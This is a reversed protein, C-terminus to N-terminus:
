TPKACGGGRRKWTNEFLEMEPHLIRMQSAFEGVKLDPLVSDLLMAEAGQEGLLAIAELEALRRACRGVCRLLSKGLVHVCTHM